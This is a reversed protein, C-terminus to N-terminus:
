ISSDHIPSNNPDKGPIMYIFEKMPASRAWVDPDKGPIM